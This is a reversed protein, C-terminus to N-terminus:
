LQRDAIKSAINGSSLDPFIFINAKGRLPSDPCKMESVAPVFAADFQIEGDILYKDQYVAAMRREALKVAKQM